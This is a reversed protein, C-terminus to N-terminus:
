QKWEVSETISDRDSLFLELRFRVQSSFHRYLVMSGNQLQDASLENPKSYTGDDITLVGKQASRIAFSQRNWKVQLDSGSQTVSLGLNYPDSSPAHPRLTLAVQFGLLVGLVLFVFSLPIWVWARRKPREYDPLAATDGNVPEAERSYQIFPRDFDRPRPRPEPEFSPREAPPRAYGRRAPREPVTVDDPALDKRRFPFEQLPAGDPFRGDEKVYFGAVSPKTGFPRILLVVTEPEPCHKALLQLDEEGLGVGDRTHSRFYGILRLQSEPKRWQEVAAHFSLADEESLLYSPGRKYEIPVLEYDEIRVVHSDAEVTGLLLGGVEAGRRPVAGFGRIVDQQLRDVVDLSLQISTQKGPVEWVYFGPIAM